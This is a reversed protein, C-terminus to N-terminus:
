MSSLPAAFVRSPLVASDVRLAIAGVPRFSTAPWTHYFHAFQQRIHKPNYSPSFPFVCYSDPFLSLFPDFGYILSSLVSYSFPPSNNRKKPCGTKPRLGEAQAVTSRSLSPCCRRSPPYPTPLDPRRWDPRPWHPRPWDPRAGLPKSQVPSFSRAPSAGRRCAGQPLPTTRLPPLPLLSRSAWIRWELPAAYGRPVPKPFHPM